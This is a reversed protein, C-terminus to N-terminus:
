VLAAAERRGIALSAPLDRQDLSRLRSLPGTRCLDRDFAVKKGACFRLFRAVRRYSDAKAFPWSM